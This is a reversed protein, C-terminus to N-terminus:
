RTNRINNIIIGNTEAWEYITSLVLYAEAYKQEGDHLYNNM